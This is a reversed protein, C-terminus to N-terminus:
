RLVSNFELHGKARSQLGSNIIGLRILTSLHVLAPWALCLALRALQQEDSENWDLAQRSFIGGKSLPWQKIEEKTIKLLLTMDKYSISMNRQLYGQLSQYLKQWVFATFLLANSMGLLSCQTLASLNIPLILEGRACIYVKRAFEDYAKIAVYQM